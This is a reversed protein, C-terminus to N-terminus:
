EEVKIKLSASIKEYLKVTATYEGFNKITDHSIKRKDVDIKHASQLVEAVEKTTISGFLKGGDGAKAKIVVTLSEIKAKLAVAAEKDQEIKYEKAANQSNMVGMNQANAEIALKQPFLFNRAYGDSVEVMQGKKGHKKVDQTLIVKM